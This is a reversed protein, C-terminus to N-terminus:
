DPREKAMEATIEVKPYLHGIRKEAEDRMWKGYYRVDEALGQAGKWERQSRQKDKRSEPNVPPRGAFKPPIEIMAKNILVAVPNLDSAYGGARAAAGGAAARRRGRVPRSVRAAQRRDFLEKARPHDANERAPGDGARGSRRVRRRCCRRTTRTRGCCWTRSSGSCGSGSRRRSRRPRSSTRSAGVSRGGDARLDGGAGGGVAAAGVVPAAHVPARAPDVEGAGLGHQDGGAPARSRHAEQACRDSRIGRRAPSKRALLADIRDRISELELYDDADALGELYETLHDEIVTDPDDPGVGQVWGCRFSWAIALPDYAFPRALSALLREIQVDGLGSRLLDRIFGLELGRGDRSTVFEEAVTSPDFSLLGRDFWRRAEDADRLAQGLAARLERPVTRTAVGRARAQCAPHLAPAAIRKVIDAASCEHRGEGRDILEAFSYNVSTVGFDPERRFPTRVYHVRHHEDDLFEVIALVYDDPKNLSCLVENKTM